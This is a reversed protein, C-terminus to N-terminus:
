SELGFIHQPLSELYAILSLHTAQFYKWAERAGMHKRDELIRGNIKAAGATKRKAGSEIFRRVIDITEEDWGGVHNLCDTTSWLGEAQPLDMTHKTYTRYRPTAAVM